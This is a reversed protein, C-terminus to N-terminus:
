QHFIPLIAMQDPNHIGGYLAEAVYFIDGERIGVTPEDAFHRRVYKIPLQATVAHLYVGCSAAVMNGAADYIGVVLDGSHLFSSVGTRVFVDHAEDVIANLKEGYIELDGPQLRKAAALEDATPPSPKIWAVLTARDVAM